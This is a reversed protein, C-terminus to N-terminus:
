VEFNCESCLTTIIMMIPTDIDYKVLITRFLNVISDASYSTKVFILFVLDQNLKLEIGNKNLKNIAYFMCVRKYCILM